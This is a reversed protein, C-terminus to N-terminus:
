IAPLVYPGLLLGACRFFYLYVLFYDFSLLAPAFRCITSLVDLRCLRIASLPHCITIGLHGRLCLFGQSGNRKLPKIQGKAGKNASHFKFALLSGCQIRAM